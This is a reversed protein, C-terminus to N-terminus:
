EIAVKDYIETKLAQGFQEWQADNWNDGAGIGAVIGQWKAYAKQYADSIAQPDKVGRDKATALLSALNGDHFKQVADLLDQAPEYFKVGKESKSREIAAISRSMTNRSYDVVSQAASDLWARKQQETFGGWVDRNVAVFGISNFTGLPALTVAKAVDWFQGAELNGPDLVSCDLSGRQLGEYIEQYSANVPTAGLEGALKAMAGSGRVKKGALDALSMVPQSACLFAYSTTAVNQLVFFNHKKEEEKCQDCGLLLAETTAAASVRTEGGYLDGLLSLVPLDSPMYSYILIASDVAGTRVANHATTGAALVGGGMIKFTQEGNTAATIRDFFAKAVISNDSHTDPTHSSYILEAGIAPAVALFATAAGALWTKLNM